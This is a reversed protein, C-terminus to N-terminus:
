GDRLHLNNVIYRGDDLSVIGLSILLDARQIRPSDDDHPAM